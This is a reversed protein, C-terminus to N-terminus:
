KNARVVTLKSGIGDRFDLMKNALSCATRVAHGKTNEVVEEDWSPIAM